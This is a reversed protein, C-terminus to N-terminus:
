RFICSNIREYLLNCFIIKLLKAMPFGSQCWLTHKVYVLAARQRAGCGLVRRSFAVLVIRFVLRFHPPASGDGSVRKPIPQRKKRRAHSEIMPKQRENRRKFKRKKSRSHYCLEERVDVAAFDDSLVGMSVVKSSLLPFNRARSKKQKILWKVRGYRLSKTKTGNVEASQIEM